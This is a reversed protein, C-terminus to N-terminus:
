VCTASAYCYVSDHQALQAVEAMSSCARSDIEQSSGEKTSIQVCLFLVCHHPRAGQLVMQTFLLDAYATQLCSTVAHLMCSKGRRLLLKGLNLILLMIDEAWGGGGKRTTDRIESLLTHARVLGSLRGSVPLSLASSGM